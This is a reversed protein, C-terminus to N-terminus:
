KAAAAPRFKLVRNLVEETDRWFDKFAYICAAATFQDLGSREAFEEPKALVFEPMTYGADEAYRWSDGAVAPIPLVTCDKAAKLLGRHASDPASGDPFEFAGFRENLLVGRHLGPAVAALMRLNEAVQLMQDTRNTTPLYSLGVVGLAALQADFRTARLFEAHHQALGGAWDGITVGRVPVSRAIAQSLPSLVGAIGGPRRSAEAFDEVAIHVDNKRLRPAIGRTEIRVLLTPIGAQDCHYRIRWAALSKGVGTGDAFLDIYLPLNKETFLPM